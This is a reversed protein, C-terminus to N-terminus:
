LIGLKATVLPVLLANGPDTLHLGDASPTLPYQGGSIPGSVATAFDAVLQGSALDAANMNQRFSDTAGWAKAPLLVPDVPLMTWFLYGVRSAEFIQRMKAKFGSWTNVDTQSLTGSTGNPTGNGSIAVANTIAPVVTNAMGIITSVVAGGIACNAIEIPNAPTSYQARLMEAWGYRALNVNTAAGGSANSESDGLVLITKPAGSKPWYRILICPWATWAATATLNAKNANSGASVGQARVRMFRGACASGDTEWTAPSSAPAPLTTMNSGTLYEVRVSLGPLTKGSDSRAISNLPLIDSWGVVGQGAISAPMAPMVMTASSTGNITQALDTWTAANYNAALSNDAQAAAWALATMKVSATATDANVLGIQIASYDTELPCQVQITTGSAGAASITFTTGSGANNLMCKTAYATATFLSPTGDVWSNGDCRYVRYPFAGVNAVRGALAPSAPKAAQLAAATAYPGFPVGLVALAAGADWVTTWSYLRGTAPDYAKDGSTTGSGSPTGTTTTLTNADAGLVVSQGGGLVVTRAHSAAANAAASGGTAALWTRYGKEGMIYLREGNQYLGAGATIAAREDIVAQDFEARTLQKFGAARAISARNVVPMGAPTAISSSLTPM